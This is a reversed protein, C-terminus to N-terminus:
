ASSVSTWQREEIGNSSAAIRSGGLATLQAATLEATRNANSVGVQAVM